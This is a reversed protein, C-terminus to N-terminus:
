GFGKGLQLAVLQRTYLKRTATFAASEKMPRLGQKARIANKLDLLREEISFAAITLELLVADSNKPAKISAPDIELDLQSVTMAISQLQIRVTKLLGDLHNIQRIAQKAREGHFHTAL